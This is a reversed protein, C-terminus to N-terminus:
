KQMIYNNRHLAPFFAPDPSNKEHDDFSYIYEEADNIQWFLTM